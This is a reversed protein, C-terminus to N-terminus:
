KSSSKNEASSQAKPEPKKVPEAEKKEEFSAPLKLYDPIECGLLKEAVSKDVEGALVLDILLTQYIPSRRQVDMQMNNLTVKKIM